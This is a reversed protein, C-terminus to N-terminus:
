YDRVIPTAIFIATQSINLTLLGQNTWSGICCHLLRKPLLENGIENCKEAHGQM